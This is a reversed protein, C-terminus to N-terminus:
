QSVRISAEASPKELTKARTSAEGWWISFVHIVTRRTMKWALVNRCDQRESREVVAM